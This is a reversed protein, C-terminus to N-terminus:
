LRKKKIARYLFLLLQSWEKYSVLLFVFICLICSGGPMLDLSVLVAEGFILFTYVLLKPVNYDIRIYRHVDLLRLLAVVFYAVVTGLIAGWVGCINIFIYNIIVNLIGAILTTSMINKSKRMAGYLSTTFASIASFVASVLLLPVLRWAEGFGKGVYVGMFPKIVAIIFLGGAFMVCSFWQFVKTYFSVDNSTDYEKISSLGWAQTFIAAIANILAPIKSAATYIGLTAAGIMWEIMIKDSSHIFWWSIDNIVYPFSFLIMGKLLSFNLRSKKYGRWIGGFGVGCLATIGFAMISSMLYGVVGMNYVILFLINFAVILGAQGMSLLAYLKNQGKVKLYVFVNQQAFNFIIYLCLYWKWESIPRYMGMLPTLFVTLVSGVVFVITASLVVDETRYEPSLGFRLLGNFIAVSIVPLILQGASFVLDAVGYEADTLANTYLPLLFFMIFRSGIAGLGFVFIDKVLRKYKGEM